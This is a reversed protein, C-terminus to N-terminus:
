FPFLSCTVTYLTQIQSLFPVPFPSCPVTYLTQIQTTLMSGLALLSCAVPM